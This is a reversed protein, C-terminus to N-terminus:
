EKAQGNLSKTSNVCPKLPGSLLKAIKDIMEETPDTMAGAPFKTHKYHVADEEARVQMTYNIGDFKVIQCATLTGQRQLELKALLSLLNRRSLVLVGNLDIRM